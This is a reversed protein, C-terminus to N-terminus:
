VDNSKAKEKSQSKLLSCGWADTVFNSDAINGFSLFEILYRLLYWGAKDTSGYKCKINEVIVNDSNEGIDFSNM